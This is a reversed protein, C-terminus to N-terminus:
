NEDISLYENWIIQNVADKQNVPLENFNFLGTKQFVKTVTTLDINAKKVLDKDLLIRKNGQKLVEGKNMIVLEDAWEVAFDINHTTIIITHGKSHLEDLIECIKKTTAPDLFAIPEDLVIVDPEMVLMGAIAVKKKQGYSLHFTNKNLVEKIQFIDAIYNIRREIEEEPLGMNNLGFALDEYVTSSFIQDDPDQFVLGVKQRVYRMTKRNIEMDEILVFGKQPLYVGNLHLLLTSKGAGNSGLIAIKKNKDIALSVDKLAPTGDDYQFALNKIEVARSM